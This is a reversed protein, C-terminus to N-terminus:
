GPWAEEPVRERFLEVLRQIVRDISLGDTILEVADDAQRLPAVARSADSHDRERIQRELEELPPVAFGRQQLDLARRRAREAATATLFVKLEAQPFVATGIDRGEAVLGGHQGLRQQQSTLAERVCAHAAVQSVAATVEPARIAESVEQGNVWVQPRGDAAATLRLELRDLLPGIAAGDGPDVGHTQLWWTLARYMAGTDLYVLGLREAFARTVTSKGAGAPGDIAVIPSRSMLVVHDILRAPGCHVAAALLALGDVRPLLKLNHPCTLAVYDVGLGAAELDRRVRETIAAAGVVGAALYGRARDLASPLAAARQRQEPDLYRNRSSRALGDAERDTAVAEISVPLGLDRVLRRLIVVQQWDKEGLFMRDPAVIALLRSVVTAVGEFHGPRSAGCLQNVLHMPPVVRTTAEPGDAYVDRLSPAWLAQAGADAAHSIDDDLTRPYREFDEGPGFQLPNVFVSVLVRPTSQSDGERAARRILVGHGQHLAGMTPVFHLPRARSQHTWLQLDRTTRLFEM